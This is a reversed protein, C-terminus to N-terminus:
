VATRCATLLTRKRSASGASKRYGDTKSPDSGKPGMVESALVDQAEFAHYPEHWDLYGLVVINRAITSLDSLDCPLTGELIAPTPLTSLFPATSLLIALEIVFLVLLMM